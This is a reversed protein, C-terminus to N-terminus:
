SVRREPQGPEGPLIQEEGGALTEGEATAGIFVCEIFDSGNFAAMCRTLNKM